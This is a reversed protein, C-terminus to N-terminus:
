YLSVFLNFPCWEEQGDGVFYPNSGDPFDQGQHTSSTTLAFIFLHHLSFHHPQQHSTSSSPSSAIHDGLFFCRFSASLCVCTSVQHCNEILYPEGTANMLDAYLTMNKQAGCSDIKVADFNFAALNRVDGQYNILHEQKEGCACGNFYWGMAIKKSHGYAVLKSMDPFKKTDIMPNGKADHQTGNVGAGCAEWGEDIGCTSYGMDSLSTFGPRGHVTRNRVVLADIQAQIVDTSISNHFANWSRWAQPPKLGLGNHIALSPGLLLLILMLRAMQYDKTLSAFTSIAIIDSRSCYYRLSLPQLKLSRMRKSLM